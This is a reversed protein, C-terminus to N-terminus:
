VYYIIKRGKKINGIENLGIENQTIFKDLKEDTLDEGYYRHSLVIVNSDEALIVSREQRQNFADLLLGSLGYNVTDDLASMNENDPFYDDPNDGREGQLGDLDEIFESYADSILDFIDFVETRTNYSIDTDNVMQVMTTFMPTVLTELTIKAQKTLTSIESFLNERAENVANLRLTVDNTGRIPYNIVEQVAFIATLAFSSVFSIKNRADSVLSLFESAEEDLIIIKRYEEEIIDVAENLTAQTETDAEAINTVFKEGSLNDSDTKKQILIQYINEDTILKALDVDAVTVMVKSVNGKSHDIDMKLPQVKLDDYYPHQMKWPKNNRSAEEFNNVIEIHDDGQFYLELPYVTGKVTSRVTLTGNIGVFDFQRTNYEIKKKPNLFSPRFSTNSKGDDPTIILDNEIRDLWSM